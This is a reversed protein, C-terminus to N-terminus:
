NTTFLACYTGTYYGHMVLRPEEDRWVFSGEIDNKELWSILLFIKKGEDHIWEIPLLVELEEDIRTGPPIKEANKDRASITYIIPETTSNKLVGELEKKIKEFYEEGEFIRELTTTTGSATNKPVNGEAEQAASTGQKDEEPNPLITLVLSIKIKKDVDIGAPDCYIDIFYLGAKLKELYVPDFRLTSNMAYYDLGWTLDESNTSNTVGRIINGNLRIKADVKQMSGLAYSFRDSTLVSDTYLILRDSGLYHVNGSNDFIRAYVFFQENFKKWSPLDVNFVVDLNTKIDENGFLSESENQAITTKHSWDNNTLEDREYPRNSEFYEIKRIGSGSDKGSIKVETTDRFFIGLTITNLLNNWFNEGVTIEGVPSTTDICLFGTTWNVKYDEDYQNLTIPHIGDSLPIVTIMWTNDKNVICEGLLNAGELVEIRYGSSTGLGWITPTETSHWNIDEIGHTTLQQASIILSLSTSTLDAENQPVIGGPNYYIDFTHKGFELNNFYDAKFNITSNKITYDSESTLTTQSQTHIIKNITNGNLNVPASVDKDSIKFFRIEETNVTSDRYVLVGDSRKIVVNGANDEIRAYIFVTENHVEENWTNPDISFLAVFPGDEDHMVNSDQWNVYNLLEYETISESGRFYSMRKVGSLSDQSSVSITIPEKFFHSISQWTLVNLIDIVPNKMVQIEAEPGTTDVNLTFETASSVNGAPDVLFAFFNHNGDDLSPMSVSAEGEEDLATEIITAGQIDKIQLNCGVEGSANVGPNPTNHWPNTDIQPANPRTKDIKITSSGSEARNGRIDAVSIKVSHSGESSLTFTLSTQTTELNIIGSPLSNPHADYTEDDLIIKYSSTDVESGEPAPEIPVDNESIEYKLTVNGSTWSGSSYTLGKSSMTLNAIVPPITDVFLHGDKWNILYDEDYQSIVINARGDELQSLPLEYAGTEDVITRGLSTSHTSDTVVITYGPFAGLGSITPTKTGYHEGSAGQVTLTQPIVTLTIMTSALDEENDPERGAPNYFIKINHNGYDLINLYPHMFTIVNGSIKCSEGPTLVESTTENLVKNITNGNLNVSASIDYKSIKYFSIEQTNVSSDRYVVVGDSRIYTINGANDQAKAYIFSTENLKDAEWTEPDIAIEGEFTGGEHHVVNLDQWIENNTLDQQDLSLNSRFYSMKEIGSLSDSCTVIITIQQKFFHFFGGLLDIVASFPSKAVRIQIDPDATDIRVTFQVSDSRNGAKDVVTGFFDHVGNELSPFTAAFSEGTIPTETVIQRSSDEIIFNCGIEGSGSITPTSVNYWDLVDIIPSNPKTKDINISLESSATQNDSKDSVLIKVTHAGEKSLTFKLQTTTASINHIGFSSLNSGASYTTGDLVIKYSATDLISFEEGLKYDFTIDDAASDGANYTKNGSTMSLNQIIPSMSNRKINQTFVSSGSMPSSNGCLRDGFEVIYGTNTVLGNADNWELSGSTATTFYEGYANNPEESKWSDHSYHVPGTYSDGDGYARKRYFISNQHNASGYTGAASQDLTANINTSWYEDNPKFVLEPGCAWYWYPYANSFDELSADSTNLNNLQCRTGGLWGANDDESSGDSHRRIFDNEAASTVVALYGKWGGIDKKFASNYAEIWTIAPEAVYRKYFHRTGPFYNVGEPIEMTGLILSITQTNACYYKVSRLFDRVKNISYDSSNVIFFSSDSGQDGNAKIEATESAEIKTDGSFDTVSYSIQITKINSASTVTLEPFTCYGSNANWIANGFVVTSAGAAEATIKSGIPDPYNFLVGFLFVLVMFFSIIRIGLM